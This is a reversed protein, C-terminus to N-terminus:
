STTITGKTGFVVQITESIGYGCGTISVLTGVTGSIPSTLYISSTIFFTTKTGHGNSTGWATVTTTGYLQTDITFTTIFAGTPSAQKETISMTTGFDIRVLEADAYGDGKITVITGVSGIIPSFYWIHPEIIFVNEAACDTIVSAAAITRTGVPQTDITFMATFSGTNDTTIIAPTTISVTGTVGFRLNITEGAPYGDAHVTVRLGVTGKTPMIPYIQPQISFMTTKELASTWGNAKVTTTGYRQTDITFTTTFMGNGDTSVGIVISPHTGFDVKIAETKYYGTGTINIITGVTGQTPNVYVDQTIKYFWQSTTRQTIMGYGIVTTTGYPQTNVLFEPNIVGDNSANVTLMTVTTGFSIRVNEGKGFGNGSIGVSSGVIGSVPGLYTLNPMIDFYKWAKREENASVEVTTSGAPQTTIAFVATFSGESAAFASTQATGETGFYVSIEENALFGDAVVTVQTGVTGADPSVKIIGPMIKFVSVAQEGSPSGTAKVTTTGYPQKDVTFIATFSGTYISTVTIINSNVGFEVRISETMGYGNGYVTVLTGVSGSIPTVTVINAQVDFLKYGSNTLTGVETAMVTTTGAPQVDTTFSISFTGGNTLIVTAISMTTGFDVRIIGTGNTNESYGAGEILIVTGITGRVPTMSKLGAKIDFIKAASGNTNLGVAVITVQGRPQDDVTFTVTFSGNDSAATVTAIGQRTGFDIRVQETAGFGNG